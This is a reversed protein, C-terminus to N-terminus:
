SCVHAFLTSQCSFPTVSVAHVHGSVQKSSLSAALNAAFGDVSINNSAFQIIRGGHAEVYVPAFHFWARLLLGFPRASRKDRSAPSSM